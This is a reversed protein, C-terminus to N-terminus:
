AEVPIRRGKGHISFGTRKGTVVDDWVQNDNVQFGVWWGIPTSEPLHLKAIKEKTFVMSEILDSAHLPIMGDDFKQVPVRRHEDGGVRSDVVYKYAAKELEPEMIIDGQRDEILVGNHESISAWGFVQQRVPDTGTIVGKAVFTPTDYDFPSYMKPQPKRKRRAISRDALVAASSSELAIGPRSKVAALIRKGGQKAGSSLVHADPPAMKTIGDVGYLYTWLRETDVGDGFMTKCLRQFGPDIENLSKVVTM